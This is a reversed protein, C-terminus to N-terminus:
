KMSDYIALLREADDDTVPELSQVGCTSVPIAPSSGATLELRQGIRAVRREGNRTFIVVDEENGKFHDVIMRDGPEGDVSVGDCYMKATADSFQKIKDPRHIDM